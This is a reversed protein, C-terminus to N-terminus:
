ASFAHLRRTTSSSFASTQDAPLVTLTLPGGQVANLAEQQNRALQIEARIPLVASRNRDECLARISLIALLTKSDAYEPDVHRRRDGADASVWNSVITV